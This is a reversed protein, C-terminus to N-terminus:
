LETLTNWRVGAARGHARELAAFAEFSSLTWRAIRTDGGARFPTFAAASRDSTTDPTRKESAITVRHGRELLRIACSLGSVGAGVVRLRM